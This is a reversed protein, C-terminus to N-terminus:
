GTQRATRGVDRRGGGYVMLLALAAVVGVGLLTQSTNKWLQLGSMVAATAVVVAPAALGGPARWAQADGVRMQRLRVLAVATLAYYLWVSFAFYGMLQEFNQGLLYILSMAVPAALARVPTGLRPHIAAFFAPLEGAQAMSAGLRSVATSVGHLAGVACVLALSGLFTSAVPGGMAQLAQMLVNPSRQAVAAPLLAVVALQLLAYCCAPLMVGWAVARILNRRPQKIEGALMTIDSWGDFTWMVVAFAMLCAGPTLPLLPPPPVDSPAGGWWLAALAVAVIAVVKCGTLLRQLWAGFRLGLAVLLACAVILAGAIVEPPQNVGMGRLYRAAIWAMATLSAPYTVLWAAWGALQAVRQGFAREYYVFFGGDTPLRSACEAYCLAGCLAIAGGGLWVLAGQWAVPAISAVAAPAVFIGSGLIIGIITCVADFLGLQRQRPGAAALGPAPSAPARAAGRIAPEKM